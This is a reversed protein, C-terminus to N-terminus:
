GGVVHHGGDPQPQGRALLLARPHLAQGGVGVPEDAPVTGVHRDNGGLVEGHELAEHVFSGLTTALVFEYEPALVPAAVESLDEVWPGGFPEEAGYGALVQRTSVMPPLRYEAVRGPGGQAWALYMHEVGFAYPFYRWAMTPIFDQEALTERSVTQWDEYWPEWYVEEVTSGDLRVGVMAGYLTAEGEIFARVALWGDQGRLTDAGYFDLDLEEDQQAHVFEHALMGVAGDTELSEGDHIITVTDDDLSYFAGVTATYDGLILVATHGMDQLRRLTWLQVANGIHVTSATPDLGIKCRLPRGRALKSVLESEPIVSQVCRAQLGLAERLTDDQIM